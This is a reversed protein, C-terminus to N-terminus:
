RRQFEPSALVLALADSKSVSAVARRTTKSLEGLIDEGFGVPDEIRETSEMGVQEAWEVRTLIAEPGLWEEARDAWGQPSPASFPLQGLYKVSELNPLGDTDYGLARATSSVLDEPTKLKTLSKEWAEPCDVLAEATKGLDGRSSKFAKAIRDVAKPPPDDAIFHRALKTALLKGTSDHHVLDRIVQRGSEEGERYRKGLVTKNGPEHRAGDFQFGVRIGDRREIGWGTLIKALEIIDEQSYGGRVGLTHLEMLERAYNENLGRERKSGVKSNPGVSRLNDLYVLMAPHRASSLLMQEFKGCVWPRIAEREYAGAMSRVEGRSTSVALHNSWFRVLRERFPMETRVAVLCRAAMEVKYTDRQMQNRQDRVEAGGKRLAALMMITEGSPKLAAFERIPPADPKLQGKLWGRPDKSIKAIDGPRAGLGFRNVAITAERISV